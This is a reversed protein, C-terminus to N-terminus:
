ASVRALASLVTEMAAEETEGTIRRVREVLSASAQVKKLADVGEEDSVDAGSLVFEAAREMLRVNRQLLAEMEPMRPYEDVYSDFYLGTLTYNTRLAQTINELERPWGGWTAFIRVCDLTKNVALLESLSKVLEGGLARAGVSVKTVSRNGKLADFISILHCYDADM